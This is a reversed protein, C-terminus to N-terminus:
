VNTYLGVAKNHKCISLILVYLLLFLIRVYGLSFKYYGCQRCKCLRLLNCCTSYNECDGHHHISINLKAQIVSYQLNSSSFRCICQTLRLTSTTILSGRRTQVSTNKSFLKLDGRVCTSQFHTDGSHSMFKSNM